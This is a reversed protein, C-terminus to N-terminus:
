AFRKRSSLSCPSLREREVAVLRVLQMSSKNYSPTQLRLDSVKGQLAEVSTLLKTLVDQSVQIAGM